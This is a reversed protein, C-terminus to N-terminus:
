RGRDASNILLEAAIEFPQRSRQARAVIWAGELAILLGTALTNADARGLRLAHTETAEVWSQFITQSAVTLRESGPVTELLVSTVPCGESYKSSEFWDAIDTTLRTVGDSFSAASAFARDIMAAVVQGALAMAVEALQEKGDPFHHYFSGKPAGSAELIEILGIGHYSRRQFLRAAATIIRGRSTPKESVQSGERSKGFKVGNGCKVQGVHRRESV